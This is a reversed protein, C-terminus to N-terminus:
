NNLCLYKGIPLFYSRSGIVASMLRLGRFSPSQLPSFRLAAVTWLSLTIRLFICSAFDLENVRMVRNQNQTSSASLFYGTALTYDLILYRNLTHPKAAEPLATDATGCRGPKGLINQPQAVMLPMAACIVHFVGRNPLASGCQVLPLATFDLM